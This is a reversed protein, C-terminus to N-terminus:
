IIQSTVMKEEEEEEKGIKQYILIFCMVVKNFGKNLQSSVFLVCGNFM